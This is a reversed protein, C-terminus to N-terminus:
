APILHILPEQRAHSKQWTLGFGLRDAFGRVCQGRGGLLGVFREAGFGEEGAVGDVAGELLVGDGLAGVDGLDGLVDVERAHGGHEAGADGHVLAQFLGPRPRALRHRDDAGAAAEARERLLVGLGHAEADDGDVGALLLLLHRQLLEAARGEDVKGRALVDDLVHLARRLVAQPRM